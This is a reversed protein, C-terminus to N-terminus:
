GRVVSQTLAQEYCQGARDWTYENEILSRANQSLKARLQPDEFLRTIASLYENVHNARLARLPTNAGDVALGELGRDSGVVPVGAAMAELTKNKIGFGTRMPVVCITAQHLYEVMSPVRGTVTIGSLEALSWVSPVPRAGVLDLKADQYREKIAPFVELSFFSVADINARNDMAGIFVIRHGGPDATRETFQTLDVGNPIVVMKGSPKYAAIQSQDEPTTVVLGTFKACYREEYRRLLPLNLQDRLQNESTGTELQNRFTGYVSSHINVVTGLQQRWEPRVYIENVSHECTIIDFRGAAVAEDVWQQIDPSYLHLVSPPIGQRIFNSFRKVKGWIGGSPDCPKPQPFVVLEDVWKGLKEVEQDTVDESRQTIMTIDHSLKLHKLLNFTRVQTGGRTPPYPFTASLMLIKM